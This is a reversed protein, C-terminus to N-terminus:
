CIASFSLFGCIVVPPQPPESANSRTFTTKKSDNPRSTSNRLPPPRARLASGSAQGLGYGPRFEGDVFNIETEHTDARSASVKVTDAPGLRGIITHHKM